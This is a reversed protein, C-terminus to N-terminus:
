KNEVKEKLNEAMSDLIIYRKDTIINAGDDYLRNIFLTQQIQDNRKQIEEDRKQQVM